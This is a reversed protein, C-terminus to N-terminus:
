KEEAYHSYYKTYDKRKEIPMKNLVVGAIKGGVQQINKQAELLMDKKTSESATVLITYDVKKCIILSDAVISVPPTDFIIIDFNQKVIQLFNDMGECGLLESPNPPVKGCPVLFLNKIETTTISKMLADAQYELNEEEGITSQLFDSFGRTNFRSFIRHLRGKRLDSDVLLVKKGTQAYAVALNASVWSKGDGPAVSTVLLVQNKKKGCMFTLNTRLLRISESVPDKPSEHVILEKSM